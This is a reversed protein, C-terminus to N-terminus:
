CVFTTLKIHFHCCCNEVVQCHKGHCHQSAFFVGAVGETADVVDFFEDSLFASEGKIQANSTHRKRRFRGLILRDKLKLIM